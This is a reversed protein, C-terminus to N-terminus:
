AATQQTKNKNYAVALFPFIFALGALFLDLESRSPIAEAPLAILIAGLLIPRRLLTGGFRSFTRHKAIRM